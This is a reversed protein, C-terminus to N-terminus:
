NALFVNVAKPYKGRQVQLSREFNVRKGLLNKIKTGKPKLEDVSFFFFEGDALEIFGYLGKDATITGSYTEMRPTKRGGGEASTERLPTVNIGCFGKENRSLTFEINQGLMRETPNAPGSWKAFPFFLLGNKTSIFGFGECLREITGAYSKGIDSDRWDFLSHKLRVCTACVGKENKGLKFRVENGFISSDPDNAEEWDRFSFFLDGKETKLFGFGNNVTKLAGEFEADHGLKAWDSFDPGLITAGRFEDRYWSTLVSASGLSELANDFSSIKEISPTMKRIRFLTKRDLFTRDVQSYYMRFDALLDVAGVFDDHEVRYEIFRGYYQCRIDVLRRKMRLNTTELNEARKIIELAKDFDRSIFALRIQAALIPGSTPDLSLGIEYQEIAAEFNELDKFLFDGYWLRLPAHKPNLSIAEEFSGQSRMLQKSQQLITALVRHSEFYGSNLEIANEALTKAEVLNREKISRISDKLLKAVVLDGDGRVFLNNLDYYDIQGQSALKEKEATLVRRRKVLDSEDVQQAKSYSRVYFVALESAIFEQEAASNKSIKSRILNSAVLENIGQQVLESSLMTYYAITAESQSTGLFVLTELIKRTHVSLKDVVSSLCFELIIKRNQLVRVPSQGKAIAQIFWKLFLPNNHLKRCYESIVQQKANAVDSVGWFKAAARLFFGSEKETLPPLPIPFDFAGISARSTFLIKSGVPVSEVLHKINQDLVTELNDVVLLIPFAGLHSLLQDLPNSAAEGDLFGTAASFVGLSTTIAGDIEKIENVTLRSAKATTWVVAEFPCTGSDILDYCAKLALASKGLGGEGTVTIIPYAGRIARDLTKQEQERGIFGTEDFDALPLNHLISSSDDNKPQFEVSHIFNSDNQLKELTEGLAIWVASNGKVLSRCTTLVNTHDEFLLPRGHMVRNRIPVLASLRSNHSKLQNQIQSGLLAAEKSVAAISDGLDAFLILDSMDPNSATESAHRALIKELTDRPFIQKPAKVALIHDTLVSRLDDEVASLLVYLTLRIIEGSM